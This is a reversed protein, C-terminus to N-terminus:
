LRSILKYAESLFCEVQSDDYFCDVHCNFQLHRALGFFEDIYNFVSQGKRYHEPALKSAILMSTDIFEKESMGKHYGFKRITNWASIFKSRNALNDMAGELSLFESIALELDLIREMGM